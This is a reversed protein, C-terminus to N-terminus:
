TLPSMVQFFGAKLFHQIFLLRSYLLFGAIGSGLAWCGRPQELGETAPGTAPPGLNVAESAEVLLERSIVDEKRM